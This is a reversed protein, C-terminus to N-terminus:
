CFVFVDRDARPNKFSIKDSVPDITLQKWLRLNNPRLDHVLGVVKHIDAQDFQFYIPQKWKGVLGRLMAVQVNGYPEYLVDMGKDYSWKRRISMEDISLVALREVDTLIKAKAQLLSLM